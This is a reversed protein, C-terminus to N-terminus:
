SGQRVVFTHILDDALSPDNYRRMLTGTCNGVGYRWTSIVIEDPVIWIEKDMVAEDLGFPYLLVM